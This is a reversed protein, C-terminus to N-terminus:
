SEGAHTAHGKPTLTAGLSAIVDPGSRTDRRESIFECGRLIGALHPVAGAVEPANAGPDVSQSICVAQGYVM